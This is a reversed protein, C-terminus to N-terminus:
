KFKIDIHMMRNDEWWCGTLRVGMQDIIKDVPFGDGPLEVTFLPNPLKPNVESRIKDMVIKLFWAPWEVNQVWNIQIQVDMLAKNDEFRFTPVVWTGLSDVPWVDDGLYIIVRKDTEKHSKFTLDMAHWDSYRCDPAYLIVTKEKVKSFDIKGKDFEVSDPVSGKILDEASSGPISITLDPGFGPFPIQIPALSEKEDSSKTKLEDLARKMEELQPLEIKNM